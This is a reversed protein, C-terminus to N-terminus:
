GVNARVAQLLKDAAKGNKWGDMLAKPANDLAGTVVELAAGDASPEVIAVYEQGWSLATKGSTFAARRAVADSEVLEFKGDEVTRLLAAFLEDPSTTVSMSKTKPARM